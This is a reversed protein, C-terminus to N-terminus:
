ACDRRVEDYLNKLDRLQFNLNHNQAEFNKLKEERVKLEASKEELLRSLQLNDTEYEQESKKLAKQAADLQGEYKDSEKRLRELEKKVQRLEAERESLNRKVIEIEQTM